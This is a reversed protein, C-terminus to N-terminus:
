GAAVVGAVVAARDDVPEPTEDPDANDLGGPRSVVEYGAVPGRM